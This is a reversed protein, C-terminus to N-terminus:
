SWGWFVKYNKVKTGRIYSTNKDSLSIFIKCSTQYICNDPIIKQFSIDISLIKCELTISRCFLFMKYGSVFLLIKM